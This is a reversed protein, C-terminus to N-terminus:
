STCWHNLVLAFGGSNFFLSVLVMFDLDIEIFKIKDNDKKNDDGKIKSRRVLIEAGWGFVHM